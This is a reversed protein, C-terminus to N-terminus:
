QVTVGLGESVPKGCGLNMGQSSVIGDTAESQISSRPLREQLLNHPTTVIQLSQQRSLAGVILKSRLRHFCDRSLGCIFILFRTM